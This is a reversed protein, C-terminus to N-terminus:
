DLRVDQMFYQWNGFLSHSFYTLVVATFRFTQEPSFSFSLSLSLFFSLFFSLIHTRSLSQTRIRTYARMCVHAFLPVFIHPPLNSFIWQFVHRHFSLFWLGVVAVCQIMSYTAIFRFLQFSTVLAGRGHRLLAPICSINPTTCTFPAAISSESESLSVGVHAAKLAASCRRPVSCFLHGAYIRDHV